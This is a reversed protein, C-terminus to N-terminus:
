LTVSGAHEGSGEESVCGKRIPHSDGVDEEWDALVCGEAGEM